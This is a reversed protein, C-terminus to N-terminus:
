PTRGIAPVLGTKRVIEAVGVQGAGSAGGVVGVPPHAQGPGHVAQVPASQQGSAIIPVFGVFSHTGADFALAYSGNAMSTCTVGILNEGAVPAVALTHLGPCSETYRLLAATAKPATLDEHLVQVIIKGQANAAKAGPAMQELYADWASPATPADGLYHPVDNLTCTGSRGGSVIQGDKCGPVWIKHGDATRGDGEQTGSVATWTTAQTTEVYFFDQPDPTTWTPAADLRAAADDLVTVASPANTQASPRHSSSTGQRATPNVATPQGAAQQGGQRSSASHEARLTVATVATAM